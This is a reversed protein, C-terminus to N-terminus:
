DSPTTEELPESDLSSRQSDRWSILQDKIHLTSGRILHLGTIAKLGLLNNHLDRVVSIDELRSHEKHVLNGSFQGLVELPQHTPGYLVKSPKGLKTKELTDYVKKSIVTVEAGTDMKFLMEKGQLQVNVSWAQDISSTVTGLFAEELPGVEVEHTSAAVTKSLCQSAYTNNFVASGNRSPTQVSSTSGGQLTSLPTQRCGM